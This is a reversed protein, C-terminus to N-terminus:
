SIISCFDIGCHALIYYLQIRFAAIYVNVSAAYARAITLINTESIIVNMKFLSIVFLNLDQPIHHQTTAHVNGVNQHLKTDEDEFILCAYCCLM